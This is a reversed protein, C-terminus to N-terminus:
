RALGEPPTKPAVVQNMAIEVRQVGGLIDLLVQVRNVSPMVRLVEANFGHFPGGAITVIEGEKVPDPVEYSENADFQQRLQAIVGDPIIPAQTGFMVITKVGPSGRVTHMVEAPVFKAFLYGPFLAEVFWVAGRRTAKRIRLRPNFVEVEAVARRLHAAAIHEHKQQTRVCFWAPTHMLTQAM